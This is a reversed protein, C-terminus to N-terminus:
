AEEDKEDEEDEEPEPESVETVAAPEAAVDAQATVESEGADSEDEDEAAAESETDYEAPAAAPRPQPVAGAEIKPVRTVSLVIRRNEPDVETVEMELEDGEVTTTDTPRPMGSDWLSIEGGAHDVLVLVFPTSADRAAIWPSASSLSPTAHVSRAPSWTTKVSGRAATSREISIFWM